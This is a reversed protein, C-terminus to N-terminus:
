EAAVVRLTAHVGRCLTVKDYPKTVVDDAGAQKYAEIDTDLANATVMLIPIRKWRDNTRIRKTAEIGGMIPMNADMLILDIEDSKAQLVDLAEQGDSALISSAGLTRLMRQALLSNMPSDDVILFCLNEFIDESTDEITTIEKRSARKFPITLTFTSGYGVKSDVSIQGGMLETLQKVIALGLGTGSSQILDGTEAQSYSDFMRTVLDESMGIGSDSVTFTVVGESKGASSQEAISASLSVEGKNTFKVSNSLLNVLIQRLRIPDAEVILNEDLGTVTFGLQRQETLPRILEEVGAMLRVLLVDSTHLTVSGAQLKSYDLVNNIVGIVHDGCNLSIRLNERAAESIDPVEMALRVYGLLGHLPTRIEHSMDAIFRVKAEAAERHVRKETIEHSIDVLTILFTTSTTSKLPTFSAKVHKKSGQRGSSVVLNTTISDSVFGEQHKKIAHFFHSAPSTYASIPRGILYGYPRGVLTMFYENCDQIVGKEDITCYPIPLAKILFSNLEEAQDREKIADSLEENQAALETKHIQLDEYLKLIEDRSLQDLQM